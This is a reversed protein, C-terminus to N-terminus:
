AQRAPRGQTDHGRQSAFASDPLRHLEPAAGGSYRAATTPEIGSPFRSPSGIARLWSVNGNAGGLSGERSPHHAHREGKGGPSPTLTKRKPKTPVASAIPTTAQVARSAGGAPRKTSSRPRATASGPGARRMTEREGDVVSSSKAM